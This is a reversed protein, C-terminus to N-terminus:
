PTQACFRYGQRPPECTSGPCDADSACITRCAGQWCTQPRTPTDCDSGVGPPTSCPSGDVPFSTGAAILIPPSLAVLQGSDVAQLLVYFYGSPDFGPSLKLWNGSADVQFGDAWQVRPPQDASRSTAWVTHAIVDQSNGPLADLLLIIVPKGTSTWQILLDHVDKLETGPTPIAVKIDAPADEFTVNKGNRTARCVSSPSCDISVDPNPPTPCLSGGGCKGDLPLCSRRPVDCFTVTPDPCPINASCEARECVGTTSSCSEGAPCLRPDCDVTCETFSGASVCDHGPDCDAASICRPVCIGAVCGLGLADCRGCDSPAKADSCNTTAAVVIAVLLTRTGSSRM